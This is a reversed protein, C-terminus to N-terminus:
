GANFSSCVVGHTLGSAAKGIYTVLVQNADCWTTSDDIGDWAGVKYKENNELLSDSKPHIMKARDISPACVVLSDYQDYDVGGIRTTLPHKLLYLNM